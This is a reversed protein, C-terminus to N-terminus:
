VLGTKQYWAITKKIGESLGYSPRVGLAEELKQNSYATDRMLARYRRKSFPLSKGSLKSIIDCCVAVIYGLYIPVSPVFRKCDLATVIFSILEHMAYPRDAAIFIQGYAKANNQVALLVDVFDRVYYFNTRSEGRGFIVFRGQKILKVLDYVSGLHNEGFLATPRLVTVDFGNGSMALLIDEASKKTKGYSSVPFGNQENIAKTSGSECAAISSIFIFRRVGAKKSAVALRHTGLVNISKLQQRVTDTEDISSYAALHFVTDANTLICSLDDRTIDIKVWQVSNCFRQEVEKKLDRHHLAIIQIGDMGREILKELLFGGVFGSAGTIILKRLSSEQM